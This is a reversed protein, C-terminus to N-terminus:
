HLAECLKLLLRQCLTCVADVLRDGPSGVLDFAEHASLARGEIPMQRHDRRRNASWSAACGVRRKGSPAKRRMRGQSTMITAERIPGVWQTPARRNPGGGIGASPNRSSRPCASTRGNHAMDGPPAAGGRRCSEERRGRPRAPPLIRDEGARSRSSLCTADNGVGARRRPRALVGRDEPRFGQYVRVDTKSRRSRASTISAARARLARSGARCPRGQRPDRASRHLAVNPDIMRLTAEVM